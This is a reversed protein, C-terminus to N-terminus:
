RELVIEKDIFHLLQLLHGKWCNWEIVLPTVRDPLHDLVRLM